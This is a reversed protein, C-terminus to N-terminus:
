QTQTMQPDTDQNKRYILTRHPVLGRGRLEMRDEYIEMTSFARSDPPTEIIGHFTIHHIGHPDRSYGGDHDHGSFYAVVSPHAQLMSLVEKYNWTLCIPDTSPPFIPLHGAVMVKEGNIDSSQLIVDIWDLQDGSIGGNFQVFQPDDLDTPSNLDANKNKQKLVKLSKVYKHSSSDRGIVSFDYSDILLIRFKPFPSFHYAYFSEPDGPSTVWPDHRGGPSTVRPDHRGGPSTVRPDHRGGPSTVRPDHRGGPSTVRPDHRGGPSTVRPDHRGGPSTVRPDHRGGPSTVRPDHRGGPSTVRPDHRGGPSTVRPDHRGGPSTVWPDGLQMSNLKSEMLQKRSFNYFEHNGWIHHVPIKLKEFEALVKTLSSESAELPVNFGDIIDGLQLIFAPPANESAWERTADQLLSLSSRYYRVRTQVYNYGDDKDAYQIDAIVGFTFLPGPAEDM